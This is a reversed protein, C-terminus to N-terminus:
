DNWGTNFLLPRSKIKIGYEYTCICCLGSKPFMECDGCDNKCKRCEM